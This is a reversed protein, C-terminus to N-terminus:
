VQPIFVIRLNVSPAVSVMQAASAVAPVACATTSMVGCPCLTPPIHCRHASWDLIGVTCIRTTNEVEGDSGLAHVGASAWAQKQVPGM